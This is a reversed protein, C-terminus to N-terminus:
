KEWEEGMRALKAIRQAEEITMGDDGIRALAERMHGAFNVLDAVDGREIPVSRNDIFYSVRTLSCRRDIPTTM